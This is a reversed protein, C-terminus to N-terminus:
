VAEKLIMTGSDLVSMILLDQILFTLRDVETNASQLFDLTQIKNWKVDPEMLTEIFGKISSLPTRLEHSVNSLLASKAINIQKLTQIETQNAEAIKHESFIKWLAMLTCSKATKTTYLLIQSQRATIQSGDKKKITFEMKASKGGKIVKKVFLLRQPPDSFLDAIDLELLEQRSYGTLDEMAKNTELFGVGPASTFRFIGLKVNNVLSRFKDESLKLAEDTKIKNLVIGTNQALNEFHQIMELNFRDRSLSNLQLLGIVSNSAKLPILAISEYGEQICL